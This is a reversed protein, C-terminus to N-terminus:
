RIFNTWKREPLAPMPVADKACALSKMLWAMQKGGTRLVTVAEEDSMMDWHIKEKDFWM